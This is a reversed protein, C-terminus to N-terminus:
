LGCGRYKVRGMEEVRARGDDIYRMRERERERERERAKKRKRKRGAPALLTDKRQERSPTM